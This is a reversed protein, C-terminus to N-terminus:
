ENENEGFIVDLLRSYERYADTDALESLLIEIRRYYWRHQRPDKENFYNFIQDGEKLYQRHLSRINSLKDALWLIKVDEDESAMLEELSEEKRRRWTTAPNIGPYKDETESAVLQAVRESFQNRIDDLTADTDEVTDHLMCAALLEDDNKIKAAIQAVEMPHLIYPNGEMKRIVGQHHEVAFIIAKEFLTMENM